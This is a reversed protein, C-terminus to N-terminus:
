EAAAENLAACVVEDVREGYVGGLFTRRENEDAYVAGAIAVVDEEPLLGRLRAPDLAIVPPRSRQWLTGRPRWAVPDGDEGRVALHERIAHGIERAGLRPNGVVLAVHDASVVLHEVGERKTRLVVGPSALAALVEAVGRSAATLLRGVVSADTAVLFRGGSPRVARNVQLWRVHGALIELRRRPSGGIRDVLGKARAARDANVRVLLFREGIATADSATLSGVDPFIATESNAGFVLRVAGKVQYAPLGKPNIRRSNETIKTRIERTMPIGRSDRVTQEDFLFVSAHEAGDNFQGFLAAAGVAHAQGHTAAIAHALVTKGCGPAGVIALAPLFSDLREIGSCALWDRVRDAEAGGLESIWADADPSFVARPISGRAPPLALIRGRMEPATLSHDIETADIKVGLDAALERWTADRWGGKAERYLDSGKRRLGCAISWSDRCTVWLSGTDARRYSKGDRELVLFHGRDMVAIVPLECGPPRGFRDPPQRRAEIECTVDIPIDRAPVHDLVALADITATAFRPQDDVVDPDDEWFFVTENGDEDRGIEPEIARGDPDHYRWSRDLEFSLGTRAQDLAREFGALSPRGGDFADHYVDAVAEIAKERAKCSYAGCPTGAPASCRPCPVAHRHAAPNSHLALLAGIRHTLQANIASTSSEV